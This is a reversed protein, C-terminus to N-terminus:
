EAYLQACEDALPPAVLAPESLGPGQNIKTPDIAIPASSLPLLRQGLSTQTLVWIAVALGAAFVLFFLGITRGLTKRKVPIPNTQDTM